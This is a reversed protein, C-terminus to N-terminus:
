IIIKIQEFYLELFHLNTHLFIKEGRDDIKGAMFTLCHYSFYSKESM